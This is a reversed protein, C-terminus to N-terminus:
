VSELRALYRQRLDSSHSRAGSQMIIQQLVIQGVDGGVAVGGAGASTGGSTAIAGSGSLQLSVDHVFKHAPIDLNRAQLAQRVEDRFRWDQYREVIPGWVKDAFWCDELTTFFRRLADAHHPCRAPGL